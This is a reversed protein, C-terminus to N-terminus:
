VSGGIGPAILRSNKVNEEYLLFVNQPAVLSCM